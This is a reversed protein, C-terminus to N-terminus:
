ATAIPGYLTVSSQAHAGMALGCTALALASRKVFKDAM